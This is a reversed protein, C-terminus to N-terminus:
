AAIEENQICGFSGLCPRNSMKMVLSYEPHIQKVSGALLYITRTGAHQVAFCEAPSKSASIFLSLVSPNYIFYRMLTTLDLCTFVCTAANVLLSCLQVSDSFLLGM